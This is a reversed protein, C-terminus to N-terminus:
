KGFKNELANYLQDGFYAEAIGVGLSIAWGAVPIFVCAAAVGADITRGTAAYYREQSIDDVVQYDTIAINLYTIKKRSVCLQHLDGPWL